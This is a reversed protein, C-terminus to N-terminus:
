GSSEVWSFTLYWNEWRQIKPHISSFRLSQKESQMDTIVLKWLCWTTEHIRDTFCFHLPFHSSLTQPRILTNPQPQLSKGPCSAVRWIGFASFLISRQKRKATILRYQNGSQICKFSLSRLGETMQIITKIVTLM